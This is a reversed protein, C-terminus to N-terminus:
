WTGYNIQCSQMYILINGYSGVGCPSTGRCRVMTTGQPSQTWWGTYGQSFAYPSSACAHNWVYQLCSVSVSSALTNTDYSICPYSPTTSQTVAILVIVISIVLVSLGFIIWKRYNRWYSRCWIGVDDCRHEVEDVFITWSNKDKIIPLKSIDIHIDPM